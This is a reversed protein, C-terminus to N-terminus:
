GFASASHPFTSQCSMEADMSGCELRASAGGYAPASAPDQMPPHGPPPVVFWCCALCTGDLELWGMETRPLRFGVEDLHWRLLWASFEPAVRALDGCHRRSCGTPSQRCCRFPSRWRARLM